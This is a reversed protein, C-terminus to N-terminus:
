DNAGFENSVQERVEFASPKKRGSVILREKKPNLRDTIFTTDMRCPQGLHEKWEKETLPAIPDETGRVGVLYRAGQLTPNDADASGMIPNQNKAYPIVVKPIHNDGPQITTEQGDFRVSLPVPARNVLVVLDQFIGMNLTEQQETTVFLPWHQVSVGAEILFRSGRNPDSGDCRGM